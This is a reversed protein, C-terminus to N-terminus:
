RVRHVNYENGDNRVDLTGSSGFLGGGVSVFYQTAPGKWHAYNVDDADQQWTTGDALTATFMGHRDFSYTRLPVWRAESLRVPAAIAPRPAAAAGTVLRQQFALAPPLGLKGRVPQVAGYVCDLWARDDPQQDCRAIGALSDERPGAEAAQWAALSLVSAILLKKLANEM